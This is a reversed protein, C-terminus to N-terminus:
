EDAFVGNLYGIQASDVSNLDSDDSQGHLQSLTCNNCVRTFPLGFRPERSVEM